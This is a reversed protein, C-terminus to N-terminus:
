RADGTPTVRFMGGPNHMFYADFPDLPPLQVYTRGTSEDQMFLRYYWPQPPDGQPRDLISEERIEEVVHNVWKLEQARGAFEDWDGSSKNAYMQARFEDLTIGMKEAVPQALRREWEKLTEVREVINTMNGFVGASMQHHLMVADPYAYSHDALTTIIAAMSAAFSKVVVHVPAPSDEIAQVIRYGQQVSGGPCNDIVIFIPAEPNENNFFDIRECVYDATGTIIPGNLDIRRDSIYLTDGVHPDLRYEIETDLYNDVQRSTQLEALRSSASQTALEQQQLEAQAKLTEAALQVQLLNNEASIKQQQANLEALEAQRKADALQREVSLVETQRRMEALAADHKVQAIRQARELEALEADGDAHKAQTRAQELALQTELKQKELELEALDNRQRQQLAQYEAELRQKEERLEILEAALKKNRLDAKAGLLESQERLLDAETKEPEPDKADEVVIEITDAEIEVAAEDAFAPPTFVAFLAAALLTSTPRHM